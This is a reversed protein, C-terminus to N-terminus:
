EIVVKAVGADNWKQATEKDIEFVEDPMIMRPVMTGRSDEVLEGFCKRICKMKVLSPEKATKVM